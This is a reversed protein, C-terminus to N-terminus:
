TTTPVNQVYVTPINIWFFLQFDPGTSFYKDVHHYKGNTNTASTCNIYYLAHIDSDDATDVNKGRKTPDVFHFKFQSYFPFNVGLGSQTLQNTLSSGSADNGYQISYWRSTENQSLAVPDTTQTYYFWLNNSWCIRSVRSSYITQALGTQDANFRWNVSGRMGIFMPAFMSYFSNRVFNFPATGAVAKNATTYANPDFGYYIPWIGMISYTNQQSTGVVFTAGLTHQYQFRHLLQRLSVINEGHNYLYRNKNLINCKEGAVMDDERDVVDEAQPVFYSYKNEINRPLAFELNPAGRVYIAVGIISDAVPASLTNMVTLSLNGNDYGVYRDLAGGTYINNYQVASTPAPLNQLWPFNQTYPVTVEFNTTESIDVVKTFAAPYDPIGGSIINEYPEYTVRLRGKHFKSCVVEFRFIIDGRWYQFANAVYAMPTFQFRTTVGPELYLNPTVTFAAIIDGINNAYAFPAVYLLSEKQVIYSIDMEDQGNLGVSRPDITLENKCDIALKECPVSIDSAAMNPFASNYMPTVPNINPVNTYGFLSAIGAVANAGMQTATAATGIFPVDKLKGAVSAIASATKSVPKDSYEDKAQVALRSSLGCLEVDSAWAFIQVEVRTGTGTADNASMLPFIAMTTIEGMDKLADESTDLYDLPHFFPLVLTGGENTQPKLYICPRQSLPGMRDPDSGQITDTWHGSLPRYSVQYYGYYFPSANLVYKVNLKCRFFAFNDLKKKIVTNNFYLHWPLYTSTSFAVDSLNLYESKILTPRSLFTSLGTDTLSLDNMLGITPNNPETNEGEGIDVFGMNEQVNDSGVDQSQPVLYEGIASDVCCYQRPVFEAITSYCFNGQIAVKYNMDKFWARVLNDTADICKECFALHTVVGPMDSLFELM